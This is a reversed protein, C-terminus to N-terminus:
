SHSRRRCPIDLQHAYHHVIDRWTDGPAASPARVTRGPAALRTAATHLAERDHEDLDGGPDVDLNESRSGVLGGAAVLLQAADFLEDRPPVGLTWAIAM